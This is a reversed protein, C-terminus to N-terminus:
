LAKNLDIDIGAAKIEMALRMRWAGRDDVEEYIVGSYDGPIDVGSKYLVCVRRRSLAGLFFGLELVVNQRARPRLEEPKGAAHGVDDPTFLVVAFAVDAHAEFKEIITRGKNPSEDFVIPTLGLKEVFRITSEKVARDHGHVIFVKTSGAVVARKVPASVASPHLDLREVLSELFRVQKQIRGRLAEQPDAM